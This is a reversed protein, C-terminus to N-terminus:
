SSAPLDQKAAAEVEEEVKVIEQGAAAPDVLAKQNRGGADGKAQIATKAAGAKLMM